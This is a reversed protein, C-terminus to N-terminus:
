FPPSNLAGLLYVKRAKRLVSRPQVPQLVSACRERDRSQGVSQNGLSSSQSASRSASGKFRCVLLHWVFPLKGGFMNSFGPAASVDM